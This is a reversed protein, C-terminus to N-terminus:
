RSRTPEGDGEDNKQKKPAEKERQKKANETTRNSRRTRKRTAERKRAQEVGSTEGSSVIGISKRARQPYHYTDVSSAM